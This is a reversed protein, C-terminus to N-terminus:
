CSWHVGDCSLTVHVAACELSLLQYINTIIMNILVADQLKTTNQSIVDYCYQIFYIHLYKLIDSDKHTNYHCGSM